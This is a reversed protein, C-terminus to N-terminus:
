RLFTGCHSRIFDQLKPERRLMLCFERIMMWSPSPRPFDFDGGKKDEKVALDTAGPQCETDLLAFFRGLYEITGEENGTLEEKLYEAILNQNQLGASPTVLLRLLTPYPLRLSMTVSRNQGHTHTKPDWEMHWYTIPGTVVKPSHPM